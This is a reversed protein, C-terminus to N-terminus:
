GSTHHPVGAADDFRVTVDMADDMREREAQAAHSDRDGATVPDGFLSRPWLRKALVVDLEAGHVVVQAILFIWTLLGIVVAFTGYAESAGQLTREVYIGGVVQLVAYGVGAFVAGPLVESWTPRAVTLLRYLVAFIAIDVAVSCVLLLITVAPGSPLRSGLQTLATSVVLMLGLVVLMAFSRVRKGVFGPRDVRAVDWVENMADQVAQMMGLGAWLAGALGVVLAVPNGSLPTSVSAAISDGVVPFQALASDAVQSRLADDGDLAFGLITILALLAPFVSFFGYYAILAALRGAGDDSSRRAVAVLVATPRHRQQALDVRGLWGTKSTTPEDNRPGSRQRESRPRETPADSTM